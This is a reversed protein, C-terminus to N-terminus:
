LTIFLLCYQLLCSEPCLPWMWNTEYDRSLSKCNGSRRTSGHSNSEQEAFCLSSLWSHSVELCFKHINMQHLYWNRSDVVAASSKGSDIKSFIRLPGWTSVTKDFRTKLVMFKFMFCVRVKARSYNLWFWLETKQRQALCIYSNVVVQIPVLGFFSINIKKWCGTCSQVLQKGGTQQSLWYVWQRQHLYFAGSTGM